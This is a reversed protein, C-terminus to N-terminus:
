RAREIEALRERLYDATTAIRGDVFRIEYAEGTTSSQSAVLDIFQSATKVEDTHSRWKSRFHDAAEKPTHAMGNRIFTVDQMGAVLELLREIKATESTASAASASFTFTGFDEGILANNLVKLTLLYSSGGLRFSASDGPTLSVPSLVASGDKAVLSTMVQNRTIDDITLRLEGDSGPVPTTSRQKVTVELPLMSLRPAVAAPPTAAPERSCGGLLVALSAASIIRGAFSRM